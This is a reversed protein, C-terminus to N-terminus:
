VDREQIWSVIEAAITDLPRSSTDFSRHALADYVDRRSEVLATWAEIGNVLPRKDGAIRAEVAEPSVTLQVVVHNALDSKTLEHMVAGGGLAVVADEHLAEAVADRELRRFHEEGHEAFIKAIIGHRAVIRKDTDIFPVGLLKAIRKGLRTKGAGPAGILVVVPRGTGPERPISM